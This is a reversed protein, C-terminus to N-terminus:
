EKETSRVEFTNTGDGRHTRTHFQISNLSELSYLYLMKRNSGTEIPGPTTAIPGPTSAITLTRDIPWVFVYSWFNLIM